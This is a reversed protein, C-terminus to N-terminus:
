VFLLSLVVDLLNSPDHSIVPDGPRRPKQEIPGGERHEELELDAKENIFLCVQFEFLMPFTARDFLFWTTRAIGDDTMIRAIEEVYYETQEKYLHTFVSHAIVFSFQNSS